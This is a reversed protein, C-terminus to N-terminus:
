GQNYITTFDIRPMIPTLLKPSEDEVQPAAVKAYSVILSLFGLVDNTVDAPSMNNPKTQFFGKRVFTMKGRRDKAPLLSSPEGSKAQSFLDSIAELPMPATVQPVGRFKSVEGAGEVM